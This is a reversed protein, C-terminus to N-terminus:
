KVRSQIANLGAVACAEDKESGRAGGVGIAGIVEDGVKILVAGARTNFNPNAALKESLKSDAKVVDAVKSSSTGFALATIAKNQSSQVGRSSAGDSALLVKLVSGSDLVSVSIKQDLAQCTDIAKQAAELALTLSPGRAAPQAQAATLAPSAPASVADAAFCPAATSLLSALCLSYYKM